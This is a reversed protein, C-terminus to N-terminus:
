EVKKTLPVFNDKKNFNSFEYIYSKREDASEGMLINIMREAEIADELNVKILLRKGKHMTTDRLQEPNMEGLGKYRQIAYGKGMEESFQKLEVEDYAYKVKNGKSVKYLPPQGIYVKGERILERM